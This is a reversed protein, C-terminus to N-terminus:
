VTVTALEGRWTWQYIFRDDETRRGVAAYAFPSGNRHSIRGQAGITLEAITGGSERILRELEDGEGYEYQFSDVQNPPARGQIDGRGAIAHSLRVGADYVWSWGMGAFLDLGGGQLADVAGRGLKAARGESHEIWTLLGAKARNTANQIANPRAGDAEAGVAPVHGEEGEIGTGLGVVTLVSNGSVTLDQCSFIAQPSLEPFIAPVLPPAQAWAGPTTGSALMALTMATLLLEKM